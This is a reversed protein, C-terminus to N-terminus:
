SCANPPLDDMGAASAVEQCTPILEGCAAIM